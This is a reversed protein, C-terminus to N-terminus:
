VTVSLASQSPKSTCGRWCRVIANSAPISSVGSERGTKSTIHHISFSTSLTSSSISATKHNWRAWGASPLSRSGGGKLPMHTTEIVNAGVPSVENTGGSSAEGLRELRTEEGPTGIDRRPECIRQRLYFAGGM